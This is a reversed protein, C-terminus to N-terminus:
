ANRSQKFKEVSAPDILWGQRTYVARYHKGENLRKIIAQHSIGVIKAADTPTIWKELEKLQM